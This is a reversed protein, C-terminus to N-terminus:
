PLFVYITANQQSDARSRGTHGGAHIPPGEGTLSGTGRGASKRASVPYDSRSPPKQWAGAAQRGWRPAPQLSSFCSGPCTKNGGSSSLVRRQPWSALMM